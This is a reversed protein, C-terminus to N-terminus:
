KLKKILFKFPDASMDAQVLEHGVFRCFNSFDRETSPDTALIRIVQGVEMARIQHRLLMLPEPCLLGQADLEEDFHDAQSDIIDLRDEGGM